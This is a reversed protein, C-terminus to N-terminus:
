FASKKEVSCSIVSPFFILTGLVAVFPKRFNSFLKHNSLFQRKSLLLFESWSWGRLLHLKKKWKLLFTKSSLFLRVVIYPIVVVVFRSQSRQNVLRRFTKQRRLMFFSASGLVADKSKEDIFLFMQSILLFTSLLDFWSRCRLLHFKEVHALHKKIFSFLIKNESGCSIGKPFKFFTRSPVFSAGQFCALVEVPELRKSPPNEEM